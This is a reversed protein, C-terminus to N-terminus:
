IENITIIQIRKEREEEIENKKQKKSACDSLFLLYSEYDYIILTIKLEVVNYM